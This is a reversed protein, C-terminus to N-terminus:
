IKLEIRIRWGSAAGNKIDVPQVGIGLITVKWGTLKGVQEIVPAVHKAIEQAMARAQNVTPAAKQAGNLMFSRRNM